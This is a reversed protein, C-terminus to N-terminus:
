IVQEVGTIGFKKQLVDRMMRLGYWVRSKATGLPINLLKAAEPVSLDHMYVLEIALRHESGLQGLVRAMMARAEAQEFTSAIANQHSIQEAALDAGEVQYQQPRAERRRFEDIAVRKMTVLAYALPNAGNGFDQRQALRLLTSSVLDEADHGAKEYSTAQTHMMHVYYPDTMLAGLASEHLSTNPAQVPADPTHAIVPEHTLGLEGKM